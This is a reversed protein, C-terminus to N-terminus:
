LDPGVGLGPRRTLKSASPFKHPFFFGLRCLETPVAAFKAAPIQLAVALRLCTAAAPERISTYKWQGAVAVVLAGIRFCTGCSTQAPGIHKINTRGAMYIPRHLWWIRGTGNWILAVFAWVVLFRPQIGTHLEYPGDSNQVTACRLWPPHEYREPVLEPM